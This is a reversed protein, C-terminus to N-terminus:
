EYLVSDMEFGDIKECVEEFNATDAECSIQQESLHRGFIVYHLTGYGLFQLGVQSDQDDTWLVSLNGDDMLFLSGTKIKRDAKDQMSKIFCCFDQKSADNIVIDDLKAENELFEMRSKYETLMPSNKLKVCLAPM